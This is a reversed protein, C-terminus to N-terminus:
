CDEMSKVEFGLLLCVIMPIQDKFKTRWNQGKQHCLNGWDSHPGLLSTAFYLFAGFSFSSCWFDKDPVDLGQHLVLADSHNWPLNIYRGVGIMKAQMPTINGKLLYALTSGTDIENWERLTRRIALKLWRDRGRKSSSTADAAAVRSTWPGDSGWVHAMSGIWCDDLRIGLFCWNWVIEAKGLLCVFGNWLCWWFSDENKYRKELRWAIYCLCPRASLRRARWPSKLDLCWLTM